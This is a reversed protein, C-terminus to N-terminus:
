YHYYYLTDLSHFDDSKRETLPFVIIKFLPDRHPIPRSLSHLM